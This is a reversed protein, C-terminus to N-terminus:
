RCMGLLMLRMPRCLEGRKRKAGNAEGENRRACIFVRVSQDLLTHHPPTLYPMAPVCQESVRRARLGSTSRCGGSRKLFGGTTGNNFVRAIASPIRAECPNCPTQSHPLSFPNGKRDGGVIVRSVRERKRKSWGTSAGKQIYGVGEGQQPTQELDFNSQFHRLPPIVPSYPFCPTQSAHLKRFLVLRPVRSRLVNERGKLHSTQQERKM